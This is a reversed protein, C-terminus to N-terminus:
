ANADVQHVANIEALLSEVRTIEAQIAEQRSVPFALVGHGNRFTPETDAPVPTAEYLAVAMPPKNLADYKVGLGYPWALVYDDLHCARLKDLNNHIASVISDVATLHVPGKPTDLTVKM